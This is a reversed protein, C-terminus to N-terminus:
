RAATDMECSAAPNSTVDEPAFGVRDWFFADLSAGDFCGLLLRHEWSVAAVMADMPASAPTLLARGEPLSGVWLTLTALDAEPLTAADYLFVVGGHELNHVWNETPVAETHVGWEAWCPNHDGSSPPYSPYAVVDPVHQRSTAPTGEEVCEGGCADCTERTPETVTGAPEVVCALLFLIM